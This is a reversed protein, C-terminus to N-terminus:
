EVRLLVLEQGGEEYPEDWVRKGVLGVARRIPDLEGGFELVVRTGPANEDPYQTHNDEIYLCFKELLDELPYQGEGDESTFSLTVRYAFDGGDEGDKFIGDGLPHYRGPSALHKQHQEVTFDRLDYGIM